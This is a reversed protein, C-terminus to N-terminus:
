RRPAERRARAPARPKVPRWAMEWTRTWGLSEYLPRGMKSAHLTMRPLKERKTWAMAARVIRRAHGKGRHEPATYMSMLYPTVGTPHGPRPQVRMLWLAGSAVPGGKTEVIWAMLEGRRLRTRAWTRYVPDAADLQDETYGGMDAFMRRRHLVLTDLDRISAERLPVRRSRIASM